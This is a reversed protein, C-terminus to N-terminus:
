FAEGGRIEQLNEEIFENIWSVVAPSQISLDDLEKKVQRSDLKFEEDVYIHHYVLDLEDGNAAIFNSVTAAIDGLPARDIHDYEFEATVRSGEGEKSDIGFSGNTKEAAAKFLSLGLGVERTTRSTVFPDTINGLKEASIGSGNDIIEIKLYNKEPNEDIFLKILDSAATRSNELIDSIHLSLERM